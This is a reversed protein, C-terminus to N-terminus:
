NENLIRMMRSVNMTINRPMTDSIIENSPEIDPVSELAMDYITWSTNHGVNCVGFTNKNILQVIKGAITQINEFNGLQTTIAKKYIFPHPKFSTRILLYDFSKAQVYADSILKTYSYWNPANAPVDNESANEKSNAYIYDTSIQVIKKGRKSCHDVLNCVGVFNVDWYDKRDEGYTNTNAICNIIVGYNYLLESYSYVNVFDMGKNKKRSIYDWGTQKVLETGLLGDGLVLPKINKEPM